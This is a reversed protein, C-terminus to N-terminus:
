KAEALAYLLDVYVKEIAALGAIKSGAAPEIVMFEDPAHAGSGYGIGGMVMPLKLVETFLYYPASGALRPVVSTNFGHKNYVSLASQVLPASVSTQAPPYGSLKRVAIDGFGTADLHKRILALASDPHQNPVLRSDMKARAVHPLITKMGVGTYGSWIGDVNLTTSFLYQMLSEAGTIGGIWREVGFAKRQDAESATWAPVMGNVLRQEEESPPRIADYYGPVLITNGDPTTLSAIAQALRIAPADVIAKYSGHIEAKSPGGQPGGKAELEFYLIGKVGLNVVIDGKGDQSNFPFFVGSTTRLRDAYKEIAQPFHLSGLEEEGEAMVMLNVPLTKKTAIIADLANLFAREPGKENTAGRAMLVKGLPRDVVEGGFANVSWETPEVPQVDYMMYVALTRAAGADYYGWVSPHGDTPVLTTERFGLSKLDAMVLRAMEQIGDNQASVSRQRVWRKMNELHKPLNADIYAYTEAHTGQYAPVSAARFTDSVTLTYNPRKATGAPDRDGTPTCSAAGLSVALGFSRFWRHPLPHM